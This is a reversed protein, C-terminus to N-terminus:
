VRKISSSSLNSCVRPYKYQRYGKTLKTPTKQLNQPWQLWCSREAKGTLSTGLFLAQDEQKYFGVLCWKHKLLFTGREPDLLLYLSNSGDSLAPSFCRQWYDQWHAFSPKLDPIESSPPILQHNIWPIPCYPPFYKPSRQSLPGLFSSFLHSFSGRGSNTSLHRSFLSLPFDAACFEQFHHLYPATSVTPEGSFASLNSWLKGCTWSDTKRSLFNSGPLIKRMRSWLTLSLCWLINQKLPSLSCPIHMKLTIELCLCLFTVPVACPFWCGRSNSSTKQNGCSFSFLFLFFSHSTCRSFLYFVCHFLHSTLFFFSLFPLSVFVFCGPLLLLFIHAPKALHPIVLIQLAPQTHSVWGLALSLFPSLLLSFSPSILAAALSFYDFIFLASM